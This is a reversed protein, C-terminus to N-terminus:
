PHQLKKRAAQLKAQERELWRPARGADWRAMSDKQAISQLVPAMAAMIACREQLAEVYEPTLEGKRLVVERRFIRAAERASVAADAECLDERERATMLKALQDYTSQLDALQEACDKAFWSKRALKLEGAAAAVLLVDARDAVGSKVGDAVLQALKALLEEARNLKDLCVDRDASRIQRARLWADALQATHLERDGVLGLKHRAEVFKCKDRAAKFLRGKHLLQTKEGYLLPTLRHLYELRADLYGGADSLGQEYRLKEKQVRQEATTLAPADPMVLPNEHACMGAGPVIYFPLPAAVAVGAVALLTILIPKMVCANYCSLLGFDIRLGRNSWV